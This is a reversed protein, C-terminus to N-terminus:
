SMMGLVCGEGVMDNMIWALAGFVGGGRRGRFNIMRSRTPVSRQRMGVKKKVVVEWRM